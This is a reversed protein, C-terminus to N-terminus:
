SKRGLDVQIHPPGMTLISYRWKLRLVFRYIKKFLNSKKM